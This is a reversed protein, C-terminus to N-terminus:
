SNRVHKSGTAGEGFQAARCYTSPAKKEIPTGDVENSKKRRTLATYAFEFITVANKPMKQSAIQAVDKKIRVPM